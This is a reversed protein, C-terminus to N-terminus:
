RIWKGIGLNKVNIYRKIENEYVKVGISSEKNTATRSKGKRRLM